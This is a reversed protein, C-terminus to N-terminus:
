EFTYEEHDEVPIQRLFDDFKDGPYNSDAGYSDIIMGKQGESDEAVYLVANDDPNSDGEFRYTKLIKLDGPNYNKESDQFKMECNENMRFESTIGKEALKTMIQSMTLMPKPTEMIRLKIPTFNHKERPSYIVVFTSFNISNNIIWLKPKVTKCSIAM